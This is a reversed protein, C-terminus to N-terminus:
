VTFGMAIPRKWHRLRDDFVDFVSLPAGDKGTAKTWSYFGIVSEGTKASPFNEPNNIYAMMEECLAVFGPPLILLNVAMVLSKAGALPNIDDTGNSLRFHPVVPPELPTELPPVDQLLYIGNMRRTETVAIWDGVEFDGALALNGNTITFTGKALLHPKQARDDFQFYRKTYRMVDLMTQNLTM